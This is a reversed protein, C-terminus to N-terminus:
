AKLKQLLENIDDIKKFHELQLMAILFMQYIEDYWSELEQKDMESVYKKYHKSDLDVNNHRINLNNFLGFIKSELSSNIIALEKRKPELINSFKLLLSKKAEINGKLSHHNYQLVDYPEDKLIESVAIAEKNAEVFIFLNNKNIRKYCIKDMLTM